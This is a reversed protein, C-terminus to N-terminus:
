TREGVHVDRQITDALFHSVALLMRDALADGFLDDFARAAALGCQAVERGGAPTRQNLNHRRRFLIRWFLINQHVRRGNSQSSLLDRLSQQGTWGNRRKVSWHERKIPDAEPFVARKGPVMEPRCARLEPVPEGFLFARAASPNISWSEFYM